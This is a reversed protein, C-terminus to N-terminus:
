KCVFCLILVYMLEKFIKLCNKKILNIIEKWISWKHKPQQWPSLFQCIDNSVSLTFLSNDAYLLSDWRSCPASCRWILEFDNKQNKKRSEESTLPQLTGKEHWIVHSIWRLFHELSKGRTYIVPYVFFLLWSQESVCNHSFWLSHM